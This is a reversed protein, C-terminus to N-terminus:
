VPSLHGNSLIEWAMNNEKCFAAFEEDTMWGAFDQRMWREEETGFIEKTFVANGSATPSCGFGSLARYFHYPLTDYEKRLNGDKMVVILGTLDVGLLPRCKIKM